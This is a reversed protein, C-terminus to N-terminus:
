GLESLEYISNGKDFIGAIKKNEFWIQRLDVLFRGENDGYVWM